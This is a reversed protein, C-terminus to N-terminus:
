DDLNSLTIVCCVKEKESVRRRALHAMGNAIDCAIKLREKPPIHVVYEAMDEYSRSSQKQLYRLLSGNAAFEVM